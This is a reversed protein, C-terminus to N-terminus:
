GTQARSQGKPPLHAGLGCPLRGLSHLVKVCLRHSQELQLSGEGVRPARLVQSEWAEKTGWEQVPLAIFSYFRIYGLM